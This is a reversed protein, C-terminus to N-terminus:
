SAASLDRLAFVFSELLAVDLTVDLSLISSCGECFDTELLLLWLELLLNTDKDSSLKGSAGIDLVGGVLLSLDLELLPSALKSGGLVVDLFLDKSSILFPLELFDRRGYYIVEPSSM